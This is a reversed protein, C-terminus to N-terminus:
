ASPRTTPTAQRASMRVAIWETIEHEVWASSTGIKVPRPFEEEAMMKYVATKKLGVRDLVEPLRILKM